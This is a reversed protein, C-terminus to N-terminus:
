QSFYDFYLMASYGSLGNSFDLMKQGKLDSLLRSLIKEAVSEYAAPNNLLRGIRYFYLCYGMRGSSLGNSCPSTDLLRILKRDFLTFDINTGDM